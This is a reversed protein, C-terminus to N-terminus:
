HAADGKGEGDGKRKDVFSKAIMLIEVTSSNPKQLNDFASYFNFRKGEFSMRQRHQRVMYDLDRASSKLNDNKAFSLNPELGEGEIPQDDLFIEYHPLKVLYDSFVGDKALSHYAPMKGAGATKEGIVVVDPSNALARAVAEFAGSTFRNTLLVITKKWVRKKTGIFEDQNMLFDTIKITSNEQFLSLMDAAMQVYSSSCSRFDLVLCNVDSSNLEVLKKEFANIPKVTTEMVRYYAIEMDALSPVESPSYLHFVFSKRTFSSKVPVERVEGSKYNFLVLGLKGDDLSNLFLKVVEAPLGITEVYQGNRKRFGIMEDSIKIENLGLTTADWPNTIRQGIVGDVLAIGTSAIPSNNEYKVLSYGDPFRSSVAQDVFFNQAHKDTSFSAHSVSKPFQNEITKRFASISVWVDNLQQDDACRDTKLKRVISFSSLLKASDPKQELHISSKWQQRRANLLDLLLCFPKGGSKMSSKVEELRATSLYMRYPDVQDAFADVLKPDTKARQKVGTRIRHWKDVEKSLKEIEICGASPEQGWAVPGTILTLLGVWFFSICDVIESPKKRM